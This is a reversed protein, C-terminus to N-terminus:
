TRILFVDLSMALFIIGLYPFASLKYVRWAASSETRFVLRANAYLMLTSLINAVVLYLLGFSGFRYILMAALYLLVSLGFLMGVITKDQLTLPFYRLGARMYDERRAMMISWIHIPIWIAVLCSILAIEIDFFPKIAFWGILVPSCGAVIGLFTCSITKRWIASSVIGILGVVFCLPHLMWALVLAIIILGFILPLAKQPPTIRGSALARDRTREMRADLDRDLYNTLGNSGASGLLIALTLLVFISLLVSGGAAIIGACVGIFTLLATERPKLVNIYDFFTDRTGLEVRM